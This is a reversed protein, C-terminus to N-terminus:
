LKHFIPRRKEFTCVYGFLDKLIKLAEKSYQGVRLADHSDSGVTVIEGGLEKFRKLYQTDPLFVGVKDVGSTNIEMGIGKQILIKMIEDTIDSFEEFAVPTPNPSNPSKSVYTLHGLVDFSDHIKVNELITKLYLEYGEKLSIGDWYEKEYPDHGNVYHVSGIVYDFDRETILKEFEIKNWLTLGFEVGKLIKVKDSKLSDYAKSYDELSFLDHKLNKDSNYDYHDTFCIEKLGIEEAKKLIDASATQSDFSVSSHLHFDFM